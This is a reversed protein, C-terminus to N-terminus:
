YCYRRGGSYYCRVNCGNEDTFRLWGENCASNNILAETLPQSAGNVLISIDGLSEGTLQTFGNPFNDCPVSGDAVWVDVACPDTGAWQAYWTQAGTCNDTEAVFQYCQVRPEVRVPPLTSSCGPGKISAFCPYRTSNIAFNLDIEDTGTGMPTTIWFLVEGPKNGSVSNINYQYGSCTNPWYYDDGNCETIFGGGFNSDLIEIPKGCCDSILISQKGIKECNQLCTYPWALCPYNAIDGCSYNGGPANVVIPWQNNSDPRIAIIIEVQNGGVKATFSCQDPCSPPPVPDAAELTEAAAWFAAITILLTCLLM